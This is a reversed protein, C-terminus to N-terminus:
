VGRLRQGARRPGAAGEAEFEEARGIRHQRLAQKRELDALVAELNEHHRDGVVCFARAVFRNEKSAREARAWPSGCCRKMPAPKAPRFSASGCISPGCRITRSSM